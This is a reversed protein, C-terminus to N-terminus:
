PKVGVILLWRQDFYIAGDKRYPAFGTAELGEIERQMATQIIHRKGPPTQTLELWSELSVPIRTRECHRISLNHSDFLRTM